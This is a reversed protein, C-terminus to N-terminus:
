RLRSNNRYAGDDHDDYYYDERNENDWCERSDANRWEDGDYNDDRRRSEDDRDSHGDRDRTQDRHSDSEARRYNDFRNNNRNRRPRRNSQEDRGPRQRNGDSTRGGTDQRGYNRQDDGPQGRTSSWRRCSVNDPWIRNGLVSDVQRAPVSIRCGVTDECFRNPIIRAAMVRISKSRLYARVRDAIAKLTEGERREINQVYLNVADEVKKGTLTPEQASRTSGRTKDQAKHKRGVLNWPVPSSAMDSYSAQGTEDQKTSSSALNSPNTINSATSESQIRGQNSSVAGSPAMDDGSKTNTMHSQNSKNHRASPKHTRQACSVDDDSCSPHSPRMPAVESESDNETDSDDLLLVSLSPSRHGSQATNNQTLQNPDGCSVSAVHTPGVTETAGPNNSETVRPNDRAGSGSLKAKEHQRQSNSNGESQVKPWEANGDKGYNVQTCEPNLGKVGPIRNVTMKIENVEDNNVKEINMVYEWLRKISREYNDCKDLLSKVLQGMSIIDSYTDVDPQKSEEINSSETVEIDIYTSRASIIERPFWQSLGCIYVIMDVIDAACKETANEGRRNKLEINAKGAVGHNELQEDYITVATGFCQDRCDRILADDIDNVLQSVIDAKAKCGIDRLIHSISGHIDQLIPNSLLADKERGEDAAM